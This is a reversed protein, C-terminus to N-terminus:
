RRRSPLASMRSLMRHAGDNVEGSAGRQRRDSQLRGLSLMTITSPTYLQLNPSKTRCSALADGYNQRTSLSGTGLNHRQPLSYHSLSRRDLSRRRSRGGLSGSAPRRPRNTIVSEPPSTSWDPALHEGYM